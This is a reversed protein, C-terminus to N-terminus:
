SAAANSDGFYSRRIAEELQAAMRRWQTSQSPQGDAMERLKLLCDNAEVHRERALLAYGLGCMASGDDPYHKLLLRFCREADEPRGVRTLVNGVRRYTNRLIERNRRSKESEFLKQASLLAVDAAQSAEEKRGAEELAMALQVHVEPSTDWATWNQLGAQIIAVADDWREDAAAREALQWQAFADTPDLRLVHRLARENAERVGATRVRWRKLEDADDPPVTDTFAVCYSLLRWAGVSEPNLKVAEELRGLVQSDEVFVEGLVRMCLWKDDTFPGNGLYENPKYSLSNALFTLEARAQTKSRSAVSRVASVMDQVARYQLRNSETRAEATIQELTWQSLSKPAPELSLLEEIHSASVSFNLNQGGLIGWTAVGVVRGDMDIVPGGSSGPSLPATVQLHTTGDEADTVAGPLPKRLASVIGDSVTLEYGHPSGIALVRTGLRPPESCLHMAEMEVPDGSPDAVRVRALDHREYGTLFADVILKRGDATTVEVRAAGELVHWNTVIENEGVFFGSGLGLLHDVSDYVHITVTAQRAQEILTVLDPQTAATQDVGDLGAPPAAQISACCFATALSVFLLRSRKLRPANAFRMAQIDFEVGGIDM